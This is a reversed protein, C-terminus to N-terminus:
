VMIIARTILLVYNIEAIVLLLLMTVVYPVKQFLPM